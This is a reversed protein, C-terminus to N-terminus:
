IHILSLDVAGEQAEQDVASTDVRLILHIGGRLDLGLNIKESLPYFSALAFGIIAATILLKWFLNRM